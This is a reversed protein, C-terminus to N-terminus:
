FTAILLYWPVIAYVLCIWACPIYPLPCVRKYNGPTAMAISMKTRKINEEHTSHQEFEWDLMNELDKELTHFQEKWNDKERNANDIDGTHLFLCNLHKLYSWKTLKWLNTYSVDNNMMTIYQIQSQFM